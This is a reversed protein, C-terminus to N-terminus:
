RIMWNQIMGKYENSYIFQNDDIKLKVRFTTEFTGRYRPVKTYIYEKPKIKYYFNGIKEKTLKEIEVWEGKKNKAEQTLMAGGRHLLLYNTNKIAKNKIIVPIGLVIKERKKRNTVNVTTKNTDLVIIKLKNHKGKNYVAKVVQISDNTKFPDYIQNYHFPVTAKKRPSFLKNTEPALDMKYFESFGIKAEEEKCHALLIFSLLYLILKKM